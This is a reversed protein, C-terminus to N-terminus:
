LVVAILLSMLSVFGRLIMGPPEDAEFVKPM